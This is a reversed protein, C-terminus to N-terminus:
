RRQTNGQENKHQQEDYDEDEDSALESWPAAEKGGGGGSAATGGGRDPDAEPSIKHTNESKIQGCSKM